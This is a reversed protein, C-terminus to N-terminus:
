VRTVMDPAVAYGRKEGTRLYLQAVMAMRAAVEAVFAVHEGDECTPVGPAAEEILFAHDWRVMGFAGAAALGGHLCPIGRQDAALQSTRRGESNDVADVVLDTGEPVVVMSNQETLRVPKAEIHVGYVLQMLGALALAKNKGVATKAHFQALVNKSELRDDDVAVIQAANRLFQCVHSGLAGIGVVVVRKGIM